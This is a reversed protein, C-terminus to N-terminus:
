NAPVKEVSVALAHTVAMVVVDGVAAAKLNEPNMATYELVEGADDQLKFTNGELNIDVVKAVEVQTDVIAVGPMEGQKARAIGLVEGKVAEIQDGAAVRITINELYEARVLDGVSVQALNRVEEGVVFSIEGAENELTVARTEHNIATVKAMVTESFTASFSPKEAASVLTFAFSFVLCLSAGILVKFMKM